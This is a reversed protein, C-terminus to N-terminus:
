ALRDQPGRLATVVGASRLSGLLRERGGLGPVGEAVDDLTRPTSLFRFLERALEQNERFRVISTGCVLVFSDEFDAQRIGEAVVYTTSV